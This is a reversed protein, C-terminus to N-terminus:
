ERWGSPFCRMIKCLPLAQYLPHGASVHPGIYLSKLKKLDSLAEFGKSTVTPSVLTLSELNKLRTILRIGQDTIRTENGLTLYKLKTLGGLHELGADTIRSRQLDLEELNELEALHSVGEDTIEGDGLGIWLSKLNRARRLHVLGQNSFHNGQLSMGELSPLRSLMELSEDTLHANSIHLRKLRNLSALHAVGEDGIREADWLMLCELKRLSGIHRMTEDAVQSKHAYLARLHPFSELYPIVDDSLNPNELRRGTDDNFNLNVAEVRHFMDVGFTEILWAPLPSEAQPDCKGTHPDFHHFDYHLWGGYDRVAAVAEKQRRAAHMWWAAWM